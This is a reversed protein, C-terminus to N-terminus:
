FEQLIKKEEAIELIRKMSDKKEMTRYNENKQDNFKELIGKNEYLNLIVQYNSDIRYGSIPTGDENGFRGNGIIVTATRNIKLEMLITSEWKCEFVIKPFYKIRVMKEGPGHYIQPMSHGSTFIEQIHYPERKEGAKKFAFLYKDSNEVFPSYDLKDKILVMHNKDSTKSDIIKIKQLNPPGFITQLKTYIETLSSNSKIFELRCLKDNMFYASGEWKIGLFKNRSKIICTDIPYNNPSCELCNNYNNRDFGLKFCNVGNYILLNDVSGLKLKATDYIIDDNCMDIKQNNLITNNKNGDQFKCSSLITLFPIILILPLLNCKLICSCQLRTRVVKFKINKYIALVESQEKHRM